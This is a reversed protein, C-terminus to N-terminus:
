KTPDAAKAGTLERILKVESERYPRGDAYFIDHFWVAPPQKVYPKQWSDWPLNTQSKGVVFGWNIAAVKHKKGIPLIKDFTSGVPRAMYETCILPRHYKTLTEVRRLFDDPPGYNHFSIVDSQGLQVWSIFESKTIDRHVPGPDVAPTSWDGEWVGSTLPQSPHASRAWEFVKPLLQLVRKQKDRPELKNYSSNNTNSPENWVDWALVRQDKGFAGVVGEV